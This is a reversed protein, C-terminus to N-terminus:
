ALPDNVLIVRAIDLEISHDKVLEDKSVGGARNGFMINELKEHVEYANYDMYTVVINVFGESLYLYNPLGLGVAIQDFIRHGEDSLVLTGTTDINGTAKGTPTKSGLTKVFERELTSDYDISSVARTIDTAVIKDGGALTGYITIKVKDRNYNLGNISAM